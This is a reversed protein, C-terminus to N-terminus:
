AVAACAHNFLRRLVFHGANLDWGFIVGGPRRRVAVAELPGLDVREESM